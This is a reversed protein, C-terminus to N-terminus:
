KKYKFRELVWVECGPTPGRVFYKHSISESSVIVAWNSRGPVHACMCTHVTERAYIMRAPELWNDPDDTSHDAQICGTFVGHHYCRLAYQEWSSTSPVAVERQYLRTYKSSHPNPRQCGITVQHNDKQHTNKKCGRHLFTIAKKNRKIKKEKM